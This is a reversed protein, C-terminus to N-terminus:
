FSFKYHIYYLFTCLTAPASCRRCSLALRRRALQVACQVLLFNLDFFFYNRVRSVEDLDVM